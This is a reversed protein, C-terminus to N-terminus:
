GVGYSHLRQLHNLTAVTGERSLRDLSWFLLVDFGRKSASGFMLQFQERDATKGSLRDVYEDVVTWSQSEAFARLQRLQNEADQRGVGKTSVRAYIAVRRMAMGRYWFRVNNAYVSIRDQVERWVLRRSSGKKPVCVLRLHRDGPPSCDPRLLAGRDRPNLPVEVSWPNPPRAIVRLHTYGSTRTQPGPDDDHDPHAPEVASESEVVQEIVHDIETAAQTHPNRLRCRRTGPLLVVRGLSCWNEVKLTPTSVRRKFAPRRSYQLVFLAVQPDHRSLIREV